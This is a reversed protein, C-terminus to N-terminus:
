AAAQFASLPLSPVIPLGQRRWNRWSREAVITYTATQPGHPMRDFVLCYTTRDVEPREDLVRAADVAATLPQRDDDGLQSYLEDTERKMFQVMESSDPLHISAVVRGLVTISSHLPIPLTGDLARLWWQDNAHQLTKVSYGTVIGMPGDGAMGNSVMVTDGGRIHLCPDVFVATGANLGAADMCHGKTFCPGILPVDERFGDYVEYRIESGPAQMYAVWLEHAKAALSPGFVNPDADPEVAASMAYAAGAAASSAWAAAFSEFGTVLAAVAQPM